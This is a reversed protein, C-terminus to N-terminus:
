YRKEHNEEEEDKSIKLKGLFSSFNDFKWNKNNKIHKNLHGEFDQNGPLFDEKEIIDILSINNNGNALIYIKNNIEVLFVKSGGPINMTDILSIHKSRQMLKFNKAVLRTGYLTLFITLAFILIYLILQFITKWLSVTEFGTAYVTNSFSGLIYFIILKNIIRKM